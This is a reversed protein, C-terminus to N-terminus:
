PSFGYIGLIRCFNNIQYGCLKDTVQLMKTNENGFGLSIFINFKHIHTNIYVHWCGSQPCHVAQLSMTLNPPEPLALCAQTFLLYDIKHYKKLVIGCFFISLSSSPNSTSFVSKWSGGGM